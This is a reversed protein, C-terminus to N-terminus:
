TWTTLRAWSERRSSGTSTSVYGRGIEVASAASTRASTRSCSPRSM